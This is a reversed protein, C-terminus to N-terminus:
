QPIGFPDDLYPQGKGERVCREDAVHDCIELTVLSHINQRSDEVYYTGLQQFGIDEFSLCQCLLRGSVTAHVGQVNKILFKYGCVSRLRWFLRREARTAGRRGHGAARPM